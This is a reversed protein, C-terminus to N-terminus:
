AWPLRDGSSLSFAISINATSPITHAHDTVADVIRCGQHPSINAEGHSFRSIEM